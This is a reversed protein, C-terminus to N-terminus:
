EGSDPDPDSQSHLKVSDVPLPLRGNWGGVGGIRIMCIENGVSPLFAAVVFQSKLLPHLPHRHSLFHSDGTM